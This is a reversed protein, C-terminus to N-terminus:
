AMKRNIQSFFPYKQKIQTFLVSLILPIGLLYNFGTILDNIEIYKSRDSISYM